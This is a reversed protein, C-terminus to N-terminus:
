QVAGYKAIGANAWHMCEELATLACALDRGAPVADNLFQALDKCAARIGDHMASVEATPPRHYDFRLNLEEQTIM